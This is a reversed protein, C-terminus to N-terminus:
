LCGAPTAHARQTGMLQTGQNVHDVLLAQGLGLFLSECQQFSVRAVPHEPLDETNGQQALASSIARALAKAFARATYSKTSIGSEAVSSSDQCEDTSTEDWPKSREAAPRGNRSKHQDAWADLDIRDFAIGQSGIRIVPVLPRVERNFRNKDMGLYRPADRLRIFRPILVTPAARIVVDM